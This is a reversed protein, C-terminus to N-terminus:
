RAAVYNMDDAAPEPLVGGGAVAAAVIDRPAQYALYALEDTFLGRVLARQPSRADTLGDTYFFLM